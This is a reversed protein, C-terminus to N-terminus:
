ASHRGLNNCSSPWILMQPSPTDESISLSAVIFVTLFILSIFFVHESSEVTALWFTGPAAPTGAPGPSQFRGNLSTIKSDKVPYFITKRGSLESDWYSLGCPLSQIQVQCQFILLGEIAFM